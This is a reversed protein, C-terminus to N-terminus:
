IGSLPDFTSKPKHTIKHTLSHSYLTSLSPSFLACDACAAAADARSQWDADAPAGLPPIDSQRYRLNYRSTGRGRARRAPDGCAGTVAARPAGRHGPAVVGRSSMRRQMLGIFSEFHVCVMHRKSLNNRFYSLSPNLLPPARRSKYFLEQPPCETHSHKTQVSLPVDM